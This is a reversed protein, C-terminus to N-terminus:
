VKPAPMATGFPISLCHSLACLSLLFRGKPIKVAEDRGILGMWSPWEGIPKNKTDAKEGYRSGAEVIYREGFKLEQTWSSIQQNNFDDIELSHAFRNRIDKIVLLEKHVAKSYMGILLGLHIKTAFAGLAGTTQFLQDTIKKDKHLHSLLADTLFTEVLAGGVIAAARDSSNNLEQFINSMREPKLNGRSIFGMSGLMVPGEKVEGVGADGRGIGGADASVDAREDTAEGDSYLAHLGLAGGAGPEAM